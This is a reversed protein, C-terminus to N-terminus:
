SKVARKFVKIKGITLSKEKRNFVKVKEIAM